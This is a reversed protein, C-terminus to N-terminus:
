FAASTMSVIPSTEPDLIFKEMVSDDIETELWGTTCGDRDVFPVVELLLQNSSEVDPDVMEMVRGSLMDPGVEVQSNIEDNVPLTLAPACGTHSITLAVVPLVLPEAAKKPVVVPFQDPVVCIDLSVDSRKELWRCPCTQAM